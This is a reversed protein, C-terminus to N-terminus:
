KYGVIGYEWIDDEGEVTLTIVFWTKTFLIPIEVYNTEGSKTTSTLKHYIGYMFGFLGAILCIMIIGIITLLDM